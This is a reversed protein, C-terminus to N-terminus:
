NGNDVTWKPLYLDPRLAAPAVDLYRAIPLVWEAPIRATPSKRARAVYISATSHNAHGLLRGIEATSIQGALYVLPHRKKGDFSLMLTPKDIPKKV